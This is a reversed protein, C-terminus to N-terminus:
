EAFIKDWEVQMAKFQEDTQDPEHAGFGDLCPCGHKIKKLYKLQISDARSLDQMQVIKKKQLQDFLDEFIDEVIPKTEAKIKAVM